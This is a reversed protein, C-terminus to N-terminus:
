DYAVVHIEERAFREIVPKLDPRLPINRAAGPRDSGIRGLKEEGLRHYPLCHITDMACERLLAATARINKEDDNIGPIVPMRPQLHPFSAALRRFNDLILGNGRTTYSEHCAPDMQKLDFYILDLFPATREMEAWPFHGCTELTVHIGSRKLSPLFGGLFAAQLMPEGGSLTIGGGSSIFFDRDKRVEALLDAAVLKEGIMRLARTLCVATCNGCADCLSHDIRRDPGTLIAAKPCVERCAYCQVCCHAFFAVEQGAHHSEPNHCWACQLACGKFFLVTRIGPGDHLSFRQIDFILAKREGFKEAEQIVTESM